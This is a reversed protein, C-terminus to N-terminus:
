WFETDVERRRMRAVHGVWRMRRSKMVQIIKHKNSRADDQYSFLSICVYRLTVGVCMSGPIHLSMYLVESYTCSVNSFMSCM